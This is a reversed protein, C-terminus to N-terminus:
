RSRRDKAITRMAMIAILALGIGAMILEPYDRAFATAAQPLTPTPTSTPPPTPTATPSPTLTPLPTSTPIPTATSTPTPTSTPSPTTTPTLTPTSTLTPAPTFTAPETPLATAPAIEALYTPSSRYRDGLERTLNLYFDGYTVSPEIQTGELWENFSTIIVMDAGSQIAGEWCRRYYDGGARDRVFADARGTVLDNYGPM